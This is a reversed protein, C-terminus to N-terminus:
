ISGFWVLLCLTSPSGSCCLPPSHGRAQSCPCDATCSWCGPGSYGTLTHLNVESLMARHEQARLVRTWRSTGTCAGKDGRLGEPVPVIAILCHGQGEARGGEVSKLFFKNSPLSSPTLSPEPFSFAKLPIVAATKAALLVDTTKRETDPYMYSVYSSRIRFIITTLSELPKPNEKQKFTILVESCFLKIIRFKPAQWGLFLLVDTIWM